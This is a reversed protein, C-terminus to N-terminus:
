WVLLNVFYCMYTVVAPLVYRGYVVLAIIIVFLFFIVIRISAIVYENLLIVCRYIITKEIYVTGLNIRILYTSFLRESSIMMDM